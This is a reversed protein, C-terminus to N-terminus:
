AVRGLSGPNEPQPRPRTAGGAKGALATTMAAGTAMRRPKWKWTGTEQPTFRVRWKNGSIAGTEGANGDAAYYGPATLQTGTTEHTFTVNLRYDRFPNPKSAEAAQPGAFTITLPHWRQLSGDIEAAGSSADACSSLLLPALLFLFNIISSRSFGVHVSANIAPKNVRNSIGSFISTM